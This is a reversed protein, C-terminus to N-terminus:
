VLVTILGTNVKLWLPETANVQSWSSTMLHFCKGHQRGKTRPIWRDGTFEGWLLWHRTAQINEKSQAKFLLNLLCDHPQHNSVGDRENHRWTVHEQVMHIEDTVRTWFHCMFNSSQHRSYYFMDFYTFVQCFECFFFLPLVCTKCWISQLLYFLMRCKKKVKYITLFAQSKSVGSYWM